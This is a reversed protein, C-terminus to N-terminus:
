RAGAVLDFASIKELASALVKKRHKLIEKFDHTDTHMVEMDLEHLHRRTIDRLVEVEEDTFELTHM